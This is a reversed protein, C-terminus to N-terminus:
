VAIEIKLAQFDNTTYNTREITKMNKQKGTMMKKPPPGTNTKPCM